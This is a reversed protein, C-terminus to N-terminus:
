MSYSYRGKRPNVLDEDADTEGFVRQMQEGDFEKETIEGLSEYFRQLKKCSEIQESDLPKSQDLRSLSEVLVITEELFKELSKNFEKGMLEYRQVEPDEAFADSALFYASIQKCDVVKGEPFYSRALRLFELLSPFYGKPIALKQTKLSDELGYRMQNSSSYYREALNVM